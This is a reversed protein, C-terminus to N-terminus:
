AVIMPLATRVGQGMETRGIWVTVAGDPAVQLWANPELAAAAEAVADALPIRFAIVLGAGALAGTKLFDRRTVTRAGAADPASRTASM